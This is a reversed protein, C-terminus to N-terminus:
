KCDWIKITQDNSGSALLPFKYNVALSVVFKDHSDTIKKVCRGTKLEWVRISKDDSSSVIYKGNPHVVLARVWNDHGSITYICSSGFVDWIKITKDRSASIVYEKNIAVKNTEKGLSLGKILNKNIDHLTSDINSNNQEIKEINDGNNLNTLSKNFVELYDSNYINSISLSNKVFIVIEIKNEHGNFSYLNNGTQTNWVFINEDDSCSVLLDGKSNLSISRVWDSHGLFTKKCNGTLVDWLKISKDRSCSFIFNGDATFEIASITHEHGKLTKLCTLTDFNWIKISLDASCTALYKGVTDFALSNVTNEHAKAYKEKSFEDCEWVIISADDSGSVLLNYIPHFIICTVAGRHGKINGKAPTKPLGKWKNLYKFKVMSENEKKLIGNSIGGGSQAKDLDEKLQKIQAELNLTKNQLSLITNWRKELTNNKTADSKSIKTDNIFPEICNNYNKTILWELIAKNIDEEKSKSM